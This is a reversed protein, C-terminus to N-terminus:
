KSITIQTRGNLKNRDSTAKTRTGVASLELLLSVFKKINYIKITIKIVALQLWSTEESQIM